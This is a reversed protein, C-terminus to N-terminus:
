PRFGLLAILVLKKTETSFIIFLQMENYLPTTSLIISFESQMFLYYSLLFLTTNCTAAYVGRGVVVFNMWTSYIKFIFCTEGGTDSINEMKDNSKFLFSISEHM